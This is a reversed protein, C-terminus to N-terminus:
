KLIGSDKMSIFREAGLIVHDLVEIGLVRGAATIRATVEEDEPSPHPDGSPHNHALIIAASGRAIAGAFIDRPHISLRTLGGISIDEVATLQNKANLHLVKLVEKKLYRIRSQLIRAVDAAGKIVPGSPEDQEYVRRGLEIAAKIQCAKAMGVGKFAALENVSARGLYVLGHDLTSEQALLRQALGLVSEERTGTRLLIALLEASSLAQEGMQALRERPMDQSPLRM